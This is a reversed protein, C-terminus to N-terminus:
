LRQLAFTCHRDKHVPSVFDSDEEFVGLAYNLNEFISKARNPDIFANQSISARLSSMLMMLAEKDADLSITERLLDMKWGDNPCAGDHNMKLFGGDNEYDGSVEYQCRPCRLNWKRM